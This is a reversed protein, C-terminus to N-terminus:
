GLLLQCIKMLSIKGRRLKKDNLSMKCIKFIKRLKKMQHFNEKRMALSFKDEFINRITLQFHLCLNESGGPAKRHMKSNQLM